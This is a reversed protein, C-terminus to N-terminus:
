QHQVAVQYIIVEGFNNTNCLSANGETSCNSQTYAGAKFYASNYDKTLTYSPTASGNYFVQTSGGNVVFKITFRKGLTYNNDLTVVNKGGTNIYLKPYELRATIVYNSGSLIQAAVVHRKTAPIATIAEDVILTHTGQTSSWVATTRGNNTMERLESRPYISGSTTVGNVPARFVIGSNGPAVGFWPHVRYTALQPQLVEVPRNPNAASDFPLQIKWNTLDLVQAPYSLPNAQLPAAGIQGYNSALLSFDLLSVLNDANLDARVDYGTTGTQRNFTASLLSFDALSVQNDNNVDGAKLPSISFLNDGAVVNVPLSFALYQSHKVRLTYDQAILGGLLLTGTSDTASTQITLNSGALLNIDIPQNVTDSRGQLPLTVILAAPAAILSSPDLLQAAGIRVVALGALVLIFILLPTRRLIPIIIRGGAKNRKAFM